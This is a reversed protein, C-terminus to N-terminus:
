MEFDKDRAIRKLDYFRFIDDILAEDVRVSKTCGKVPQNATDTVVVEHLFQHNSTKKGYKFLKRIKKLHDLTFPVEDIYLLGTKDCIHIPSNKVESM